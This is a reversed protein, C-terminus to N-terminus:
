GAPPRRRFSLVRALPRTWVEGKRALYGSVYHSAPNEACQQMLDAVSDVSKPGLVMVIVIATRNSTLMMMGTQSEGAKFESVRKCLERELEPDQNCVLLDVNDINGAVWDIKELDPGRGILLRRSQPLFLITELAEDFSAAMHEEM